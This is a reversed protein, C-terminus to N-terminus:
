LSKFPKHFEALAHSTTKKNAEKKKEITPLTLSDAASFSFRPRFLFSLSPPSPLLLHSFGGISLGKLNKFRGKWNKHRSLIIHCTKLDSSLRCFTAGFNKQKRDNLTKKILAKRTIIRERRGEGMTKQKSRPEATNVRSYSKSQLGCFLFFVM